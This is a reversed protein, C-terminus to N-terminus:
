RLRCSMVLMPEGAFTMNQHLWRRCEAESFFCGRAGYPASNLGLTRYRGSYVGVWIAQTGYRAMVETCSPVLPPPYASAARAYGQAQAATIGFLLLLSCGLLRTLM